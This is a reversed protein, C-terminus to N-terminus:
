RIRSLNPDSHSLHRSGAKVVHCRSSPKEVRLRGLSGGPWVTQKNTLISPAHPPGSLLLVQCVRASSGQPQVARLACADQAGHESCLVACCLAWCIGWVLPPMALAVPM